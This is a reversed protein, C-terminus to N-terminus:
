KSEQSIVAEATLALLRTGDPSVLLTDGPRLHAKTSVPPAILRGRKQREFTLVLAVSGDPKVTPVMRLAVLETRQNGNRLEAPVDHMTTITTSDLIARRGGAQLAEGHWVVASMEGPAGVRRPLEWRNTTLDAELTKITLRVHQDPECRATVEAALVAFLIMPLMITRTRRV